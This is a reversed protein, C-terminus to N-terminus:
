SLKFKNRYQCNECIVTKYIGKKNKSISINGKLQSLCSQCYLKRYNSLKIKYKMALRKIKKLDESSFRKQFFHTIKEQVEKKSMDTKM